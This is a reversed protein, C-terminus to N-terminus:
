SLTEFAPDEHLEVHEGIARDPVDRDDLRAIRHEFSGRAIGRGFKAELWGHDFANRLRRVSYLVDETKAHVLLSGRPPPRQFAKEERRAAQNATARKGSM